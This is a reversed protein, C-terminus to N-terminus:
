PSGNRKRDARTASIADRLFEDLEAETMGSQRMERHVPALVEQLTPKTVTEQVLDSPYQDAPKGAVAARRRVAEEAKRSLSITFQM